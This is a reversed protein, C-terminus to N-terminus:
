NELPCGEKVVMNEDEDGELTDLNRRWQFHFTGPRHFEERSAVVFYKCITAEHVDTCRWKLDCTIHGRDLPRFHPISDM